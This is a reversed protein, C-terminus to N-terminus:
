TPQSPTVTQAEVRAGPVTEPSKTGTGAKRSLIENRAEILAKNPGQRAVFADIVAIGREPNGDSAHARALALAADLHDPQVALARTWESIAQKTAGRAWYLRGLNYSAEAYRSGEQKLAVSLAERAQDWREQRLLVVGLNNLARPYKGRRLEIAKRYAEIAADTDGLRALANGTNYLAIPDAVNERMISRLETVAESKRNLAILYDVLTRQLRAREKRDTTAAIKERLASLRDGGNQANEPSRRAVNAGAWATRAHALVCCAVLAMMIGAYFCQAWRRGRRAHAWGEGKLSM